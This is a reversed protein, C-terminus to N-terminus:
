DAYPIAMYKRDDMQYTMNQGIRVIKVLKNDRDIVYVNFADQSADTVNRGQDQIDALYPYATGGFAAITCTVNLMLQKNTTGPVYCVSDQHFHGTLHAIFEVSSDVNSFDASVSVYSPTGTQTYSKSLTARSIFADVIDYLPVGGSVANMTNNYLRTVQFFDPYNDDKANDLNVQSAHSLIIVGYGSPTSALTSVLWSLQEDTFHTYWRNTGGYQYLNVSILRIHKTAIDKYYWTKGTINGLKDAIGAFMFDYIAADDMDDSYVDHNGTCVAPLTDHANLLKNFWDLGQSPKYSVIDGTICGVDARIQDCFKLFNDVRKYDGHCDSTHGIVAYRTISNPNSSNFYLRANTLIKESEDNTLLIDDVNEVYLKLDISDISEAVITKETHHSDGAKNCVSIGYYNYGDPIEIVDGETYWYLNLDLNTSAAGTRIAVLYNDNIHVKIKRSGGFPFAVIETTSLRYPALSDTTDTTTANLRGNIMTGIYLEVLNGKIEAVDSSITKITANPKYFIFNNSADEASIHNDFNSFDLIAVRYYPYAPDPIVSETINFVERKIFAKNEDYYYLYTGYPIVSRDVMISVDNTFYEATRCRKVSGDDTDEGTTGSILGQEWTASVYVEDNDALTLAKRTHADSNALADNIDSKLDNVADGAAKADAALGSQTLSSDIAVASGTPTVNDDLWDKTANSIIEPAATELTTVRGEVGAIRDGAAKAEGPANEESLTDDAYIYEATGDSKRIGKLSM